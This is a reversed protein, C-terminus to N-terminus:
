QFMKVSHRSILSNPLSVRRPEADPQERLELVVRVLEAAIGEVNQNITTMPPQLYSSLEPCEFGVVSIDEPIRRNLRYLAHTASLTLDESGLVLATPNQLLMESLQLMLSGVDGDGTTEDHAIVLSPDLEVGAARLGDEYGALREADAWGGSHYRLLAIKQHGHELLHEVAMRTGQRHDSHVCHWNPGFDNVLILPVGDFTHLRERYEPSWVMALIAETYQRALLDMEVSEVPMVDARLGAESLQRVLTGVMAAFYKSLALDGFGEILVTVHKRRASRNASYQLNAAAALVRERVEPRVNPHQNLVRSVTAPSVEAASAIQRVGAKAM